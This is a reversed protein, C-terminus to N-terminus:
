VSRRSAGVRFSSLSDVVDILVGTSMLTPTAWDGEVRRGNTLVRTRDIHDNSSTSEYYLILSSIQYSLPRPYLEINKHEFDFRAPYKRNATDQTLVLLPDVANSQLRMEVNGGFPASPTFGAKYIIGSDAAHAGFAFFSILAILSAAKISTFLGM